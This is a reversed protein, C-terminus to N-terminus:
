RVPVIALNFFNVCPNPLAYGMSYNALKCEGSKSFLLLQKLIAHFGRSLMLYNNAKLPNGKKTM